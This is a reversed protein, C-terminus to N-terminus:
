CGFYSKANSYCIDRVIGGIWGIDSPLDGRDIRSGLYDCLLRRFYEHRPFSLLSRSDTTMGVFKGLLGLGSLVNFHRIFGDQQDLFWWPPGLQMKGPATGDQFSGMISLLMENDSPHANFMITKTLEQHSDLVDLMATLPRGFAYDGICDVGMDPGLARHISSRANRIIGFHWLQVWRRRHNMRFLELLIAAKLRSSDPGPLRTGSRVDSFLAAADAPSAANIALTEFGHDSSRCGRTHFFEHRKDLAELLSDFSPIRMGAAKELDGIYRNYSAPDEVATARDPRFTPLIAAEFGNKKIMAHWALDDIPDDTTCVTKVNMRKLLNRATFAPDKLLENCEAYISVATKESLVENIGFYRRLELHAWDYLPNSPARELTQAWLKFKAEDSAGGTINEEPIGNSRMARWKYHDGGLWLQTITGFRADEAIQQPSLHCHYDLIPMSEAFKHYLTRAAPSHLLFDDSLYSMRQKKWTYNNSKERNSDICM